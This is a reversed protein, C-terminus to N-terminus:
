KCLKIMEDIEANLILDSLKQKEIQTLAYCVTAHDRGGCVNGIETLSLNTANKLAAMMIQRARTLRRTRANGCIEDYSIAMKECMSKVMAIPTKNKSLMDGLLRGAIDMNVREGMLETYTNIKNIIGKVLHGNSTIQKSLETAVNADVGGRILMSRRVYANPAVVDVVLGSAFLSQMRKDFGGLSNPAANATLVIHKGASKLDMMLQFFEDMTASKGALACVDDMVFLDCKRCFDKFSFITKERLARTFGSVFQGGTMKVVQMKTAGCICDVLLSKGSGNTGHIFLQSFSANGMAMKKCAAVTFMNEDCNIFDNFDNQINKQVSTSPTYECVINDNASKVAAMAGNVCINIDLSFDAAINALINGYEKKVYDATFQNQAVLYLCKECVDIQLPAIWTKFVASDMKTAFAGMISEKTIQKTAIAQM